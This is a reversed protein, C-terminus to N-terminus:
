ASRWLPIQGRFLKDFIIATSGALPANTKFQSRLIPVRKQERWIIRQNVKIALDTFYWEGLECLADGIVIFAPDYIHVLTVLLKVLHRNHEEIVPILTQDQEHFRSVFHAWDRSKSRSILTNTSCYLEACDFNGCLCQWGADTISIHGLECAFGRDGKLLHDRTFIGGGVGEGVGLYVFNPNNRYQGLLYEAVASANMNNEVVVPLSFREELTERINPDLCRLATLRKDLIFQDESVMACIVVGIGLFCDPDQGMNNIIEDIYSSIKDNIDPHEITPDLPHRESYILGRKLDAVAVEISSPVISLGITLLRDPILRFMEPKPGGGSAAESTGDIEIVNTDLLANVINSATMKTVQLESTLDSRTFTPKTFIYRLALGLTDESVSVRSRKHKSNPM